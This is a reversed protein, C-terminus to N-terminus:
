AESSGGTSASPTGASGAYYNSSYAGPHQNLSDGAHGPVQYTGIRSGQKARNARDEQMNSLTKRFYDSASTWPSLDQAGTDKVAADRANSGTWMGNSYATDLAELICDVTADNGPRRLSEVFAAFIRTDM